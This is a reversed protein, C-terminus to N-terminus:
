CLVRSEEVKRSNGRLRYRTKGSKCSVHLFLVTREELFEREKELFFSWNKGVMFSSFKGETDPKYFLTHGWYIPSLM